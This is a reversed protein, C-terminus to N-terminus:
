LKEAAEPYRNIHSYCLCMEFDKLSGSAVKLLILCILLHKLKSYAYANTDGWLVPM